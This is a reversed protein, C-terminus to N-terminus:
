TDLLAVQGDSWYHHTGIVIEGTLNYQKDIVWYLNPTYNMNGEVVVPVISTLLSLNTTNLCKKKTPIPAASNMCSYTDMGVDSAPFMHSFIVTNGANDKTIIFVPMYRASETWNDRGYIVLGYQTEVVETILVNANDNDTFSNGYITTNKGSVVCGTYGTTARFYLPTREDDLCTINNNGDITVSTFYVGVKNILITYLDNLNTIPTVRM